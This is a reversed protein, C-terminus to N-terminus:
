TKTNHNVTIVIKGRAHGEGLYRLAEATETFPYHRDIIPKVRGAELLEKIYALDRQDIKASLAGMKQSKNRSMWQGLLLAQFLQPVTGGAM